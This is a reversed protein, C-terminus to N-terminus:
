PSPEVRGNLGSPIQPQEGAFVHDRLVEQNEAYTKVACRDPTLYMPKRFDLWIQYQVGIPKLTIADFDSAYHVPSEGRAVSTVCHLAEAELKLDVCIAEHLRACFDDHSGSTAFSMSPLFEVIDRLRSEEALQGSLPSTLLYGQPKLEEEVRELSSAKMGLRVAAVKKPLLRMVQFFTELMHRNALEGPKLVQREQRHGWSRLAAELALDKSLDIGYLDRLLGYSCWPDQLHRFRERQEPTM